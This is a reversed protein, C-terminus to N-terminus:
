DLHVFSFFIRIPRFIVSQSSFRVIGLCVLVSAAFERFIFDGKGIDEEAMEENENRRKKWDLKGKTCVGLNGTGM